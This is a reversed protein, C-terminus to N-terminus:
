YGLSNLTKTEQQLPNGYNTLFAPIAFALGILPVVIVVITAVGTWFLYKRAKEAAEYAARAVKEIEDLKAALEPDIM